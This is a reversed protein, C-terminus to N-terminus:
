FPAVPTSSPRSTPEAKSRKKSINSSSPDMGTFEKNVARATIQIRM